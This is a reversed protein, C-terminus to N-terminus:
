DSKELLVIKYIHMKPLTLRAQGDAITCAVAQPAADPDYCTVKAARWGKPVPVRIPTPDVEVVRKGKDLLCVNCNVVHLALRDAGKRYLAMRLNRRRPDLQAVSATPTFSAANKWDWVLVRSGLLRTAPEGNIAVEADLVVISGGGALYARLAALQAPTVEYSPSELYLVRFQALSGADDPLSRDVLSAFLRLTSALHGHLTGAPYPHYANLRNPGWHAYLVAVPATPTYGDFLDPHKKFFARYKAQPARKGSFGGGGSFAAMEALSLEQVNEWGKKAAEYGLYISKAHMHQAFLLEAIHSRCVLGVTLKDLRPRRTTDKAHEDDTYRFGFQVDYTGARRPTWDAALTVPPQKPKLSSGSGGVAGKPTLDIRVEDGAKADRLLLHFGEAADGDTLSAGVGLLKVQFRAPKGVQLRTPVVIDAKMEMWTVNDRLEYRQTIPKPAVPGASVRVTVRDTTPPEDIAMIGSSFTSEFMLRDCKGGVQFCENIRGSNPFITFGPKVQRGVERLMGMHDRTRGLRWRRVLEKPADPSDLTLKGVDLGKTLRRIPAENHHADLWTRFLAKCYRCYCYDPHVNDVFCGDYGVEAIMRILRRHWKAWDPHNICARYRHLPAYYKPTYGGCSGGVFKGKIDVVLWDFPDHPLKPGAWKAYTNWKDYFGWFGHRKEHDGALTHYSIYPTIEGIGIAHYRALTRRINAIREALQAPSLLAINEWSLTHGPGGTYQNEGQYLRVPGWHHLIPVAKGVHLLDPPAAKFEDIYDPKKFFDGSYNIRYVIPAMTTPLMPDQGAGVASACLSAAALATCLIRIQM